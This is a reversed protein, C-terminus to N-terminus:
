TYQPAPYLASYVCYINRKICVSCALLTYYAHHVHEQTMICLAFRLGCPLSIGGTVMVWGASATYFKKTTYVIIDDHTLIYFTSLSFYRLCSSIICTSQWPFKRLLQQDVVTLVHCDHCPV